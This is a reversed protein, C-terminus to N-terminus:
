GERLPVGETKMLALATLMGRSAADVIRREDDANARLIAEFADVINNLALERFEMKKNDATMLM